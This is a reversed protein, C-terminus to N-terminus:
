LFYNLSLSHYNHKVTYVIDVQKGEGSMFRLTIPFIAIQSRELKVEIENLYM